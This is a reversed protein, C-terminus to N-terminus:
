GEVQEEIVEAKLRRGEVQEEATLGNKTLLRSKKAVFLVILRMRLRLFVAIDAYKSLHLLGHSHPMSRAIFHPM